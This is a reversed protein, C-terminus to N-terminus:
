INPITEYDLFPSDRYVLWYLPTPKYSFLSGAVGNKEHIQNELKRYIFPEIPYSMFVPDISLSFKESKRRGDRLRDLQSTESASPSRRASSRPSLGSKWPRHKNNIRMISTPHELKQQKGKIEPSPATRNSYNLRRKREIGVNHVQTRPHTSISVM